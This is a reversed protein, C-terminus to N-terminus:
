DWSAHDKPLAWASLVTLAVSSFRALSSQAKFISTHSLTVPSPDFPYAREELTIHLALPYHSFRLRMAGSSTLGCSDSHGAIHKLPSSIRDYSLCLSISLSAFVRAWFQPFGIISSNADRFQVWASSRRTLSRTLKVYGTRTLASSYAVLAGTFFFARPYILAQALCNSSVPSLLRPNIPSNYSWNRALLSSGQM